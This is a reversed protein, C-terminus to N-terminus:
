IMSLVQVTTRVRGMRPFVIRMFLEHNDLQHSTCADSIIVVNYGIDRAAYATSAVGVDTSGGSILLSNVNRTRLAHDLYTQYFASWRYKPIIYDEPLPFLEDIVQAEWTEGIVAHQEIKAKDEDRISRLQNDTDRLIHPTTKGDARHNAIAYLVMINAERAAKLLKVANNIVDVYRDKIVWKEEINEKIHGNLMDFFLLASREPILKENKM